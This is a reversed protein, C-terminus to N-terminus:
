AAHADDEAADTPRRKPPRGRRPTPRETDQLEGLYDLTVGLALALRKAADFSINHRLEEEVRSIWSHDVQAVRALERQSLGREERAHKLRSGLSM